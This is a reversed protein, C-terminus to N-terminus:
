RGLIMREFKFRVDQMLTTAVRRCGHLDSRTPVFLEALPIRTTRVFWVAQIGQGVFYALATAGAAGLMGIRPVMLWSTGICVAAACASVFLAIEPRGLKLTFFNSLPTGLSLILVAFLLVRLAPVLPLYAAGYLLAVVYPAVVYFTVCILLAVVFTARISKATLEAAHRSEMSGVHPSTAIGAVQTVVLLSEAAAVAVAYEGLVAPSALLAVIYLDGRYNLLTVLSVLGVRIAFGFFARLSVHGEPLTRADHVVILLSGVGVIINVAVFAVIAANATVSFAAFTVGMGALLAGTSVVAYTTQWRIRKTGLAYGLIIMAAVNCPLLAVSPGVAWSNHGAQAMIIVPISGIVSFILGTILAPRLIARGAAHNLMFYSMASSIGAFTSLVLGVYVATALAYVGRDHPGLARALVVSLVLALLTRVIRGGLTYLGDYFLAQTNPAAATVSV